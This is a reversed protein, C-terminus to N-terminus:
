RKPRDNAIHVAEHNAYVNRWDSKQHLARHGMFWSSGAATGSTQAEALLTLHETLIVHFLANISQVATDISHAPHGSAYSESGKGSAADATRRRGPLPFIRGRLPQQGYGEAHPHDAATGPDSWGPAARCLITRCCSLSRATIMRAVRFSVRKEKDNQRNYGTHWSEM